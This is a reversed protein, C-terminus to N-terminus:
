GVRGNLGHVSANDHRNEVRVHRNVYRRGNPAYRDPWLESLSVNLFESIIAEGAPSPRSLAQRCASEHMGKDTALKSLTVGRMRIAAKIQERHWPTAKPASKSM